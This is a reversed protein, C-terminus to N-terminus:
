GHMLRLIQHPFFLHAREWRLKFNNRYYLLFIYTLKCLVNLFMSQSHTGKGKKGYDNEAKCTYNGSNTKHVRPFSLTTGNREFGPKDVSIWTIQTSRPNGVTINCTVSFNIGEIINQQTLNHVIPPDSFFLFDLNLWIIIIM